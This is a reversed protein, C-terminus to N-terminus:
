CRNPGKLLWVCLHLRHPNPHWVQGSQQSLLDKRDPLCWPEGCSLRRLLPFWTRAPWFPAVLLLMHDEQLVRQLTPWIMPLPPFAYLLGEPWPHALADQGLPSTTERLSFWLPCHTSEESAFLDVQARGFLGWITRVVEPHLRWEGPLPNQRSLSDALHNLTGPLYMVRLSALRPAAWRLLHQSVRLLQASKTGGQHNIHFVASTNDSRVLVHRGRLYPLFHRLALHVARLELVNIHSTSDQVSWLGQVTRHQWVAGWGSLSADTTVTERRAPVVGLPVGKSLFARDRWPALALLCQQSVRLKRYRHRKTDLHFSNLWRQLPRLLLLGLPVVTTMSTLKGLLRQFTIYTLTKRGKFLMLLRLVDDVRHSSPQAKMALTDLTVGIFTVRQSPKLCSKKYNVRLGLQAVHALLKATDQVVQSQSPACILWDDLYPLVKMGQSQLPALAAKVCRTFVRPSLSLGFPLVRFQWHRGKYAFRLFQRHQPAIPVHFYADALDVSTFWEGETVTRLVDATTLMHFPLRKLYQNLGRLDLIPRYGGTKKPVLFYTSYFGRPHALPDVAEIAQKALLASLEQDLALAKAPNSIVTSKVRSSLPPRRRFQLKYGQTLTSVVWPDSAVAAWYGLQQNSFYGVVPGFAETEPGGAGLPELPVTPLVRVGPNVPLCAPLPLPVPVPVFTGPKDMHPDGPVMVEWLIFIRYLTPVYFPLLTGLDVQPVWAGVLAQFGSDPKGLGLPERWHRWLLPVSFNEQRRTQVLLSMMRGLERSMLAFAQLAADSFCMASPDVSNDQLSASLAFMLHALSNGIRGARAGANYTRTLLDDTVRCQPRPCRVAPRLSEEPSVILSAIAPEVDPMRELGAGAANHMAALTRGDASLRSLAGTDRWCAHLERLFDGSPPISFASSPRRRRFFASEPASHTQQPMDLQLRELATRMIAQMSSDMTESSSSRASSPSGPESIMSVQGTDDDQFHSASAALSIVDDEPALVPMPPTSPGAEETPTAPEREQLLSRMEALEAYLQDVESALRREAKAKKKSPASATASVSRRKSRRPQYSPLQEQPSPDENAVSSVQELRAVRLARPMYSCNMCPEDSLGERLHDPGLCALSLSPPAFAALLSFLDLHNGPSSLAFATQHRDLDSFRERTLWPDCTVNNTHM